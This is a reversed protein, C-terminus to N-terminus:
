RALATTVVPGSLENNGMSPHCVYTSLLVEKETQGPLILEAYDLVGPKLESEIVAKYRGPVLNRRQAHTLCFGWRRTYYSTVYPIVNPQEPLSYLHKDLEPLDFWGEVPESYGVVHLNHAKFDVIRRGTTDAIYGDRITWEDPVTWDFAKTGSPVQHHTLGPMHAGLRKLTERVGPGTLSRCLPYLDRALRFCFEGINEDSLSSPGLLMDNMSM